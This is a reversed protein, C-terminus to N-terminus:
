LFVGGGGFNAAALEPLPTAMTDDGCFTLLDVFRIRQLKESLLRIIQRGIRGFAVLILKCGM